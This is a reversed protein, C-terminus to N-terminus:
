EIQVSGCKNFYLIITCEVFISSRVVNYTSYRTYSRVSTTIGVGLLCRAGFFLQGKMHFYYLTYACMFVYYYVLIFVFSSYWNLKCDSLVRVGISELIKKPINYLFKWKQKSAMSHWQHQYEHFKQELKSISLYSFFNGMKVIRKRHSIFSYM